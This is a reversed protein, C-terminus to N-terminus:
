ATKRVYQAGDRGNLWVLVGFTFHATNTDLSGEVITYQEYLLHVQFQM